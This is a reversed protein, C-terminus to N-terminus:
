KRVQEPVHDHVITHEAPGLACEGGPVHVGHLLDNALVDGMPTLADQVHGACLQDHLSFLIDRLPDGADEDAVVAAIKVDRQKQHRQIRGM